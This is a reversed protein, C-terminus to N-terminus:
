KKIRDTAKLVDVIKTLNFGNRLLLEESRFLFQARKNNDLGQLLTTSELYQLFYKVEPFRVINKFQFFDVSHFYEKFLPAYKRVESFGKAYTLPIEDEKLIVDILMNLEPANEDPSGGIFVVGNANIMTSINKVVTEANFYYFAFNSYIIDFRKEMDIFENCDACVFNVNECALQDRKRCAKQILNHSSDVGVGHAIHPSFSLLDKGNGCGLDLVRYHTKMNYLDRLWEKLDATSYQEQLSARNDLENGRYLDKFDKM